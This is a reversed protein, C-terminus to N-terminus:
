SRSHKTSRAYVLGGSGASPVAVDHEDLLNNGQTLVSHTLRDQQRATSSAEFRQNVPSSLGTAMIAVHWVTPHQTNHIVAPARPVAM